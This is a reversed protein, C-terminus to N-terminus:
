PQPAGKPSWPQFGSLFDVDEMVVHFNKRLILHTFINSSKATSELKEIRVILIILDSVLFIETM